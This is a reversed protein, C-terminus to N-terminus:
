MIGCSGFRIVAHCRNGIRLPLGNRLPLVAVSVAAVSAAQGQRPKLVHDPFRRPSFRGPLM